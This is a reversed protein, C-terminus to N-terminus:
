VKLIGEADHPVFAGEKGEFVVGGAELAEVMHWVGKSIDGM